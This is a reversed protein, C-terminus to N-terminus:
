EREVVRIHQDKFKLWVVYGLVMAIFGGLTALAVVLPPPDTGALAVVEEESGYFLPPIMKAWQDLASEVTGPELKQKAGEKKLFTMLADVKEVTSPSRIVVLAPRIQNYSQLITEISRRAEKHRGRKLNNRVQNMQDQFMGEYRHWLPQHPQALADFALHVREVARTLEKPQIMVRNLQQDAEVLTESLAGLGEVTLDIRTLDSGSFQDALKRLEERAEAWEEKVVKQEVQDAQKAWQRAQPDPEIHDAWALYTGGTWWICALLLVSVARFFM